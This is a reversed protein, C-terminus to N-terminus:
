RVAASTSIRANKGDLSILLNDHSEPPPDSNRHRGGASNMKCFKRTKQQGRTVV